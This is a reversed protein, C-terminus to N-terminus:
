PTDKEPLYQVGTFMAQAVPIRHLLPHLVLAALHIAVFALIGWAAALHLWDPLPLLSAQWGLWSQLPGSGQRIALLMLGSASLVIMLGYALLYALSATPHHGFRAHTFLGTEKLRRWTAPQWMDILRAHGPGVVGWVARAALGTILAAGLLGHWQHLVGRAVGPDLAWAGLGSILLASILVANVWHLLRLVPDYVRASRLKM